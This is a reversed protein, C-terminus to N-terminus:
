ALHMEEQFKYFNLAKSDSFNDSIQQQTWFNCLFVLVSLCVNWNCLPSMEKPLWGLFIIVDRVSFKHLCIWWIHTQVICVDLVAAPSCDEWGYQRVELDPCSAKIEDLIYTTGSGLRSRVHSWDVARTRGWPNWVYRGFIVLGMLLKELNYWYIQYCLAWPEQCGWSCHCLTNSM